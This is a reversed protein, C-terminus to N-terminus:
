TIINVCINNICHVSILLNLFSASRKNCTLPRSFAVFYRTKAINSAMQRNLFNGQCILVYIVHISTVGRFTHLLINFAHQRCCLSPKGWLVSVQLAALATKICILISCLHSVINTSSIKLQNRVVVYFTTFPVNNWKYGVLIHHVIIITDSQALYLRSCDQCPIEITPYQSHCKRHLLYRRQILLYVFMCVFTPCFCANVSFINQFSTLFINCLIYIPELKFAGHCIPGYLFCVNVHVVALLVCLLLDVCVKLISKLDTEMKNM